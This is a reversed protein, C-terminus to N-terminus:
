KLLVLTLLLALLGRIGLHLHTSTHM